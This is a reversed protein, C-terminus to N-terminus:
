ACKPKGEDDFYDLICFAKPTRIYWPLGSSFLQQQQKYDLRSVLYKYRNVPRWIGDMPIFNPSYPPQQELGKLPDNYDVNHKIMGAQLDKAGVYWNLKFAIHPHTKEWLFKQKAVKDSIASM